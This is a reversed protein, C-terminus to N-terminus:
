LVVCKIYEIQEYINNTSIQIFTNIKNESLFIASTKDKIKEKQLLDIIGYTNHFL